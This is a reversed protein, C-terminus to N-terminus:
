NKQPRPLEAVGIGRFSLNTTPDHGQISIAGKGTKSGNRPNEDAPRKDAFDTVQYGNVWTAIHNGHALVTMKFWEHDNSVVKRAPQRRYIAGTGFDSPKTRDNNKYGNQIQAEYGNQFQRPLCRFFVGSNLNKGNSICDLQLIFDDFHKETQLDGPGDAVNLWGEKTVTFKSRARKPDDTFQKWGTLDKGNFLPQLGSPRFKVARLVLKNGALVTLTGVAPFFPAQSKIRTVNMKNPPTASAVLDFKTETSVSGDRTQEFTIATANLTDKDVPGAGNFPIRQVWHAVGKPPEVVLKGQAGGPWAYELYLEGVPVMVTATSEKKGGLVLTGDKVQSEGAVNLGFTTEGDFLLIWGDAIEKSTLEAAKAPEDSRVAPILIVIAIFILCRRMTM